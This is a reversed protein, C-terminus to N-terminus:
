FITSIEIAPILRVDINLNSNNITKVGEVSDHDSIAIVKINSEEAMKLLEIPTDTGDSFTSHLHLDAYM